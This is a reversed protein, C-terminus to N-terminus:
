WLKYYERTEHGDIKKSHREAAEKQISLIITNRVL